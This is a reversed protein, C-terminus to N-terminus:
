MQTSCLTSKGCLHLKKQLRSKEEGSMLLSDAAKLSSSSFSMSPRLQFGGRSRGAFLRNRGSTDYEDRELRKRWILRDCVLVCECRMNTGAGLTPFITGPKHLLVAHFAKLPAPIASEKINIFTIVMVDSTFVKFHM